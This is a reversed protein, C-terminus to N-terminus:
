KLNKLKKAAASLGVASFRIRYGLEAMLVKQDLAMLFERLSPAEM